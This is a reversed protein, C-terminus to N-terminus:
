NLQYYPDMEWFSFDDANQREFSEEDTAKGKNYPQGNETQLNEFKYDDIFCSEFAGCAIIVKLDGNYVVNDTDKFKVDFEYNLVPYEVDGDYYFKEANKELEKKMVKFDINPNEEIMLNEAYALMNDVGGFNDIIEEKNPKEFLVVIAGILNIATILM